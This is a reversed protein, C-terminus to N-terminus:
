TAAPVFIGYAGLSGRFDWCFFCNGLAAIGEGFGPFENGNAGSIEMQTNSLSTESKGREYVDTGDSDVAEVVNQGENIVSILTRVCSGADELANNLGQARYPVMPHAADGAILVRRGFNNWRQIKTWSGFHDISLHTDPKVWEAVSKFPDCYNSGLKKFLAMREKQPKPQENRDDLWYSLSVQFVWSTPDNPAKSTAWTAVPHIQSRLNSAQEATFTAGFNFVIVPAATIDTANEPIAAGRVISLPGDAGILFAGKWVEEGNNFTATVAGNEVSFSQMERGFRVDFGTRLFDRLRGRHVRRPGDAGVHTVLDGTKGNYMPITKSAEHPIDAYPDTQASKLNAALDEPLCEDINHTAWHLAMGWLGARDEYKEYPQREFVEVPIGAKLWTVM